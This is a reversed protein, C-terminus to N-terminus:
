TKVSELNGRETVVIRLTGRSVLVSLPKDTRTSGGWTPILGFYGVLAVAVAGAAVAVLRPPVSLKRGRSHVAPRPLPPLFSPSPQPESPIPPAPFQEERSPPYAATMPGSGRPM